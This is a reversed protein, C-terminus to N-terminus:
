TVPPKAERRRREREERAITRAVVWVIIGIIGFVLGLM